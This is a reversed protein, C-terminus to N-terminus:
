FGQKWLCCHLKSLSSPAKQSVASADSHCLCITYNILRVSLHFFACVQSINIETNTNKDENPKRRGLRSGYAAPVGSYNDSVCIFCLSFCAFPAELVVIWSEAEHFMAVNIKARPFDAEEVHFLSMKKRMCVLLLHWSWNKVHVNLLTNFNQSVFLYFYAIGVWLKMKSIHQISYFCVPGPDLM